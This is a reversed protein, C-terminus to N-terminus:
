AEQPPDYNPVDDLYEQPVDDFNYDGANYNDDYRSEIFTEYRDLQDGSLEGLLGNTIIDARIEFDQNTSRPEESLGDTSTGLATREAETAQFEILHSFEHAILGQSTFTGYASNLTQGVGENVIYDSLIVSGTSALGYWTTTRTETRYDPGLMNDVVFPPGPNASTSLLTYDRSDFRINQPTTGGEANPVDVTRVMRMGYGSGEDPLYAVSNTNGHGSDLRIEVNGDALLMLAADNVREPPLGMEYAVAILAEMGDGAEAGPQAEVQAIFIAAANEAMETFTQDMVRLEEVSWTNPNYPSDTLSIGMDELRRAIGVAEFAENFTMDTSLIGPNEEYYDLVAQAQESTINAGDPIEIGLAELAALQEDTIPTTETDQIRIMNGDHDWLDRFPDNLGLGRPRSGGNNSTVIPMITTQHRIHNAAQEESDAMIVIMQKIGDATADLARILRVVRPLFNNDMENYFADSEESIWGNQRLRDVQQYVRKYIAEIRDAEGTLHSAAQELQEYQVQLTDQPM